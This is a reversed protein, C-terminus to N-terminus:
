INQKKLYRMHEFIIDIPIIDINKKNLNNKNVKYQKHKTVIRGHFLANNKNKLRFIVGNLTKNIIM